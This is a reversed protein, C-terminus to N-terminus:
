PWLRSRPWVRCLAANLNRQCCTYRATGGTYCVCVHQRGRGVPSSASAEEVLEGGGSLRVCGWWLADQVSGCRHLGGVQRRLLLGQQPGALRGSWFPGVRLVVGSQWESALVVLGAQFQHYALVCCCCATTQICAHSAPSAAACARCQVGVLMVQVQATCETWCVDNYVALMCISPPWPLETAHAPSSM